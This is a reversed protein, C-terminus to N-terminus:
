KVADGAVGQMVVVGCSPSLQWSGVAANYCVAALSTAAKWGALLAWYPRMAPSHAASSM